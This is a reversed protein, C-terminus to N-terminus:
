CYYDYVKELENQHWMQAASGRDDGHYVGLETLKQFFGPRPYPAGTKQIVVSALQPQNLLADDEQCAELLTTTKSITNPPLFGLHNALTRYDITKRTQAIEILIQRLQNTNIKEPM